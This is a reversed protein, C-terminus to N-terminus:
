PEGVMVGVLQAAPLKQGTPLTKLRGHSAPVKLLKVLAVSAEQHLIHGAPWEQGKCLTYGAPQPVPDKLLAVPEDCHEGQGPPVYWGPLDAVAHTLQLRPEYQEEPADTGANHAFPLHPPLM